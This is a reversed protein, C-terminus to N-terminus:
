VWAECLRFGLGLGLCLRFGLGLGLGRHPFIITSAIGKYTVRVFPNTHKKVRAIKEAQKIKAPDVKTPDLKTTYFDESFNTTM